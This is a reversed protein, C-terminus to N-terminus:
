REIGKESMERGFFSLIGDHSEEPVYLDDHIYRVTNIPPVPGLIVQVAPIAVGAM